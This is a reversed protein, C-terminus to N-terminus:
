RKPQNREDLDLQLSDGYRPMVKDLLLEINHGTAISVDFLTMARLIHEKLEPVGHDESLFQHHKHKRAGDKRPNLDKVKSHVGPALRKYVIDNVWHGVFQPRPHGIYSEYGKVRLLKEWFLDPFTKAWKRAYGTMWKDLIRQLEKNELQQRYGTAEDILAVIGVQALGRTVLDCAKVIHQLTKPVVSGSEHYGDRMRLYTEAVAPLAEAKYGVSKKGSETKFFVPKTSEILDNDIFPSLAKAQLFFPLKDVTKLIGTGAKPSRSRGIARLLAAQSIIRSGDPLVAAFIETDGIAFVGEHTAVPSADEWRAKAANKAIESRQQPTLSRARAEGGKSHYNDDSMALM